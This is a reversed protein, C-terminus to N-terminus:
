DPKRRKNSGDSLVSEGRGARRKRGDVASGTQDMREDTSGFGCPPMTLDVEQRGTAQEASDRRRRHGYRAARRGAKVAARVAHVWYSQRETSAVRIARFDIELLFKSEDPVESPDISMLRDIEVLLKRRELGKLLGLKAHHRSINQYIWQGHTIHLLKSIFQKTWDSANM